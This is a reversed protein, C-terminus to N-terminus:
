PMMPNLGGLHCGAANCSATNVAGQMTRAAGVGRCGVFAGGDLNAFPPGVNSRMWFSGASDTYVSSVLGGDQVARIETGPPAPRQTSKMYVTGAFAFPSAGGGGHCTSHVCDTGAVPGGDHLGFYESQLEASGAEYPVANAFVNQGADAAAVGADLSPGGDLAGSAEADAGAEAMVYVITTNNTTSSCAAMTAVALAGLVM